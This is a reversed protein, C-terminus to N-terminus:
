KLLVYILKGFFTAAMVSFMFLFFNYASPVESKKIVHYKISVQKKVVTEIIVFVMFLTLCTPTTIAVFRVQAFVAFAACALLSIVQLLRIITNFRKSGAGLKNEESYEEIIGPEVRYKEIEDTQIEHDCVCRLSEDLNEANGCVPCKWSM